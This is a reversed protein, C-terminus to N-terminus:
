LLGKFTSGAEKEFEFIVAIGYKDKSIETYYVQLAAEFEALTQLTADDAIAWGAAIQTDFEAVSAGGVPPNNKRSELSSIIRRILDRYEAGSTAATEAPTEPPSIEDYIAALDNQTSYVFGDTDSSSLATGSLDSYFPFIVLRGANTSFQGRGGKLIDM